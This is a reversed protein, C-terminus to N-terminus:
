KFARSNTHNGNISDSALSLICSCVHVHACLPWKFLSEIYLLICDCVGVFLVKELIEEGQTNTQVLDAKGQEQKPNSLQDKVTDPSQPAGREKRKEKSVDVPVMNEKGYGVSAGGARSGREGTVGSPSPHVPKVRDIFLDAATDALRAFGPIYEDVQNKFVPDYNAYALVGGM